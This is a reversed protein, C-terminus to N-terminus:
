HTLEAESHPHIARWSTIHIEVERRGQAENPADPRWVEITEDGIRNTVFGAREFHQRLEPILGLDSLRIRMQRLHAM